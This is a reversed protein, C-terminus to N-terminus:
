MIDKFCDDLKQINIWVTLANQMRSTSQLRVRQIMQITWHQRGKLVAIKTTGQLDRGNEVEQVRQYVAVLNVSKHVSDALHKKFNSTTSRACSLPKSSPSCLTCHANLNKDGEHVVEFYHKYKWHYFTAEKAGRSGRSVISSNSTSPSSIAVTEIESM